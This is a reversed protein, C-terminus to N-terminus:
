RCNATHLSGITKGDHERSIDEEVAAYPQADFIKPGVSEKGRGDVRQEGLSVVDHSIKLTRGCFDVFWHELTEDKTGLRLPQVHQFMVADSMEIEGVVVGYILTPTPEHAGDIGNARGSDNGKPRSCVHNLGGLGNENCSFWSFHEEQRRETQWEFVHRIKRIFWTHTLLTKIIDEGSYPKQALLMRISDDNHREMPANLMRELRRYLLPQLRMTDDVSTGVSDDSMVSVGHLGHLLVM